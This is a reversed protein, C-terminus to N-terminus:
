VDEVTVAGFEGTLAEVFIGPFTCYSGARESIIGDEVFECDFSFEPGDRQTFVSFGDRADLNEVEAFRRLVHLVAEQSAHAFRFHQHLGMSQLAAIFTQKHGIPTMSFSNLAPGLASM